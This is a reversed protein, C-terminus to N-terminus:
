VTLKVPTGSAASGLLFFQKAIAQFIPEAARFLEPNGGVLLTLTGEDAAPTSGSIAVDLVEIGGRAGLRHLERSSEPSITSMELIVTGSRAGAFVGESGTYVSRVAEDNTLCSLFVDTSHALEFIPDEHFRTPSFLPQSRPFGSQSRASVSPLRALFRAHDACAFKAGGAGATPYTDSEPIRGAHAM